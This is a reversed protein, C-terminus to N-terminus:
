EPPPRAGRPVLLHRVRLLVRKLYNSKGFPSTRLSSLHQAFHVKLTSIVELISELLHELLNEKGSLLADLKSTLLEMIEVGLSM